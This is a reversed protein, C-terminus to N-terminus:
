ILNYSLITLYSLIAANLVPVFYMLPIKKGFLSVEIHAIRPWLVFILINVAAMVLLGQFLPIAAAQSCVKKIDIVRPGLDVSLNSFNM